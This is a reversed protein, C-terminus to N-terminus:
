PTWRDRRTPPMKVLLDRLASLDAHRNTADLLYRHVLPIDDLYAAKGDRFFLRAFIGLVKLHRQVGMREFWSLFRHEAVDALLGSQHALGHYGLARETVEADPWAIYCDKLLSVLDYTIPGTVADQFDLIGPNNDPCVMLNRSHYDRHVFVQPQELASDALAAFTEDLMRNERPSLQAAAYRPVYWERFLEMEALLDDRHYAPFGPGDSFTGTQLVVLAGLADGYLRQATDANLHELYTASGLDTMLLFGREPDAAIVAPVNLGLELLRRGVAMFAGIDEHEPPADMA